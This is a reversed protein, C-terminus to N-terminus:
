LTKLYFLSIFNKYVQKDEEILSQNITDFLKKFSSSNQPNNFITTLLTPLEKEFGFMLDGKAIFRKYANLKSFLVETNGLFYHLVLENM